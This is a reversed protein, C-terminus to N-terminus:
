LARKGRARRVFGVVVLGAGLLLTTAPEPVFYTVQEQTVPNGPGVVPTLILFQSLRESYDAPNQTQVWALLDQAPSTLAGHGDVIFRMARTVDGALAANDFALSALIGLWQYKLLALPDGQQQLVTGTLDDLRVVIALYPETTVAPDFQDCLTLTAVGDIDFLFFGPSQLSGLYHMRVIDRQDQAELVRGAFLSSSLLLVLIVIKKTM